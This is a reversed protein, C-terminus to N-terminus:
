LNVELRGASVPGTPATVEYVIRVDGGSFQGGADVPVVTEPYGVEVSVDPNSTNLTITEADVEILYNSGAVRRPLRVDLIVRGAGSGATANADAHAVQALRDAEHLNSALQNGIVTLEDDIVAESQQEILGGAATVLTGLLLM